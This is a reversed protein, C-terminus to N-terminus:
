SHCQIAENVQTRPVFCQAQSSADKFIYIVLHLLAQDMREGVQSLAGWLVGEWQSGSKRLWIRGDIGEKSFGEFSEPWGEKSGVPRFTEVVNQIGTTGLSCKLPM